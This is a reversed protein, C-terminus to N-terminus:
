KHVTEKFDTNNELKAKLRLNQDTLDSIQNQFRMRDSTDKHDLNNKISALNALILSQSSEQRALSEREVM